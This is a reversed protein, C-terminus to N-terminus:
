YYHKKKSPQEGLEELAEDYESPKTEPKNTLKKTSM